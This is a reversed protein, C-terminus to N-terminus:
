LVGRPHGANPCMTKFAILGSHSGKGPLAIFSEKEAEGSIRDRLNSYAGTDLSASNEADAEEVEENIDEQIGAWSPDTHPLRVKDHAM